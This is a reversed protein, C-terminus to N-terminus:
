TAPEGKVYVEAPAHEFYDFLHACFWGRLVRGQLESEYWVGGDEEELRRAELAGPFRSGSFVIRFPERGPGVQTERRSSV